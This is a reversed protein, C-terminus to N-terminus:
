HYPSWRSRCEKGVRREESRYEHAVQGTDRELLTMKSTDEDHLVVYEENASVNSILTQDRDHYSWLEEGTKGSLAFVGTDLLVLVGEGMEHLVARDAGRPPKWTWAIEGVSGPYESPKDPEHTSHSVGLLSCGSLVLVACVM